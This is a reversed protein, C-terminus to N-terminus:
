KKHYMLMSLIRRDSSSGFINTRRRGECRPVVTIPKLLNINNLRRISDHFDARLSKLQPHDIKFIPRTDAVLPNTMVELLWETAPVIKPKENWAKWPEYNATQKGRFQLLSNRALSDIPQPRGGSLIPLQGFDRLAFGEKQKEPMLAGLVWGLFILTVVAPIWQKFDSSSTKM